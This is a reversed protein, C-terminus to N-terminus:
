LLWYVTVAKAKKTSRSRPYMEHTITAKGLVNELITLSRYSDYNKITHFEVALIEVGLKPLQCLQELVYHECGECNLKVVTPKYREVLETLQVVPVDSINPENNKKTCLNYRYIGEVLKDGLFANLCVVPLGTVNKKLYLFNLPLPEVAIVNKAGKYLWLLSTDGLYSGIDLVIDGEVNFPYLKLLFNPPLVIAGYPIRFERGFYHPIVLSDDEFRVAPLTDGAHQWASELRVLQRLLTKADCFVTGGARSRFRSSGGHLAWVVLQHWNIVHKRAVRVANFWAGLRSLMDLDISIIFYLIFM